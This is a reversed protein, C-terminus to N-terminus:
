KKHGGDACSKQELQGYQDDKLFQVTREQADALFLGAKSAYLLSGCVSRGDKLVVRVPRENPTRGVELGMSFSTILSAGAFAAARAWYGGAKLDYSVAIIFIGVLAAYLAKQVLEFDVHAHQSLGSFAVGL